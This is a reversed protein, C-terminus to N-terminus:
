VAGSCAMPKYRCQRVPYSRVHSATVVVGRALAPVLRKGYVSRGDCKPGPNQALGTVMNAAGPGAQGALFVGPQRAIRGFGDAMHTGAREDRVGVYKIGNCDYLADYVEMTSSGLLGFVHSVGASKLAAVLAEGGNM